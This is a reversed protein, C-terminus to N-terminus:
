NLFECLYEQCFGKYGLNAKMQSIWKDDCFEPHKRFDHQIVKFQNTGNKANEITEFFWTKEESKENTYRGNPTSQILCKGGCSLCPYMAKWHQDMDRIFAAEEIILLQISRGCAAQPTGFFIRSNTDTFHKTHDNDTKMEPKLFDPLRAIWERVQRGGGCAEWDTKSMVMINQDLSFLCKWLSYAQAWTSFGGQRYKISLVFRNEEIMSSMKEQHDYLKFPILGRKPHVIEIYKECFYGFSKACKVIESEEEQTAM